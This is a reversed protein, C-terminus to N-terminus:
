SMEIKKQVIETVGEIEQVRSTFFELQEDEIDSGLYTEYSCHSKHFCLASTYLPHIDYEIFISGLQGVLDPVVKEIKLTIKVVSKTEVEVVRILKKDPQFLLLINQTKLDPILDIMDGLPIEDTLPIIKSKTLSTGM